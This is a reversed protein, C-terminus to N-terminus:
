VADELERNRMTLQLGIEDLMKQEEQLVEAKYEALRKEKLKEISKLASMQEMLVKLRKQREANAQLIVQQQDEIQQRKWGFFQNFSMLTGIKIRTGEKSLNEYDLQGQQMEELLRRQYARAEELRRVAEAFAVEAEEKKMRTVKLLTELQFRFKKM